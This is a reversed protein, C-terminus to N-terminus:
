NGDKIVEGNTIPTDKPVEFIPGIFCPIVMTDLPMEELNRNKIEHWYPEGQKRFLIPNVFIHTIKRAGRVGSWERDQDIIRYVYNQYVFYCLKPLFGLMIPEIKGKLISEIQSM